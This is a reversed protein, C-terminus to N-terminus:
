IPAALMGLRQASQSATRQLMPLRVTQIQTARVPFCLIGIEAKKLLADLGHACTLIGVINGFRILTGSGLSSPSDNGIRRLKKLVYDAAAASCL